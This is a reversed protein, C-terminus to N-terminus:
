KKPQHMILKNILDQVQLHNVKEVLYGQTENNDDWTNKGDAALPKMKGPHLDYYTTYGKMAVLVATEDWSLRGNADDASKSMAIRFADKVPSNQISPDNILSLGVKIKEGIEFGSYIIPIGINQFVNNAAAADKIVNFEYGSPFKGAMSVLQKVKKAVLEKGNLKSYEDSSSNLLDSINTLFGITVISVSHDPQTALIKRYLKVADWADANTKIKHPYNALLTDTWHQSDRINVANAGAVGIPLDARKFYTNFVNLVAAVGEYRNSAMTALIKAEHADALAHLVTIAGVDDYDPGIDSDFIISVAKSHKQAFADM